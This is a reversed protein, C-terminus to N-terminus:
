MPKVQRRPALAALRGSRRGLRVAGRGGEAQATLFPGIDRRSCSTSGCSLCLCRRKHRGGGHCPACARAHRLVGLPRVRVCPVSFPRDCACCCPACRLCPMVRMCCTVYHFDLDGKQLVEAQGDSVFPLQAEPPVVIVEPEVFGEDDHEYYAEQM